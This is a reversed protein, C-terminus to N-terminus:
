RSPPHTLTTPAQPVKIGRLEAHLQHLTARTEADDLAPDDKLLTLRRHVEGERERRDLWSLQDRALVGPSEATAAREVLPVVRDRAPDEGLANLVLSDDIPAEDDGEDWLELVTDFIRGLAGAPCAPRHPRLGPILSNDLLAAGLLGEFAEALRPDLPAEVPAPPRPARAASAAEAAPAPRRRQAILRGQERIGGEPVGLFAAMERVRLDREVPRV